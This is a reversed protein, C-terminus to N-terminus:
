LRRFGGSDDMEDALNIEEAMGDSTDFGFSDPENQFSAVGFEGGGAINQDRNYNTMNFQSVGTGLGNANPATAVTARGRNSDGSVSGNPFDNQSAGLLHNLLAPNAALRRGVEAADVYEGRAAAQRSYADFAATYTAPDNLHGHTSISNSQAAGGDANLNVVDAQFQKGDVNVSRQKRAAQAAALQEREQQEARVQIGDWQEQTIKRLIGKRMSSRLDNSARVYRPDEWTLDVVEYPAFSLRIDSVYHPGPTINQVIMTEPADPLEALAARPARSLATDTPDLHSM